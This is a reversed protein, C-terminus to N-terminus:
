AALDNDRTMEYKSEFDIFSLQIEDGAEEFPHNISNQLSIPDVPKKKEDLYRFYYDGAFLCFVTGIAAAIVIFSSLPVM